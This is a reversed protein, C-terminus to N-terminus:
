APGLQVVTQRDPHFFEECAANAQELTVADLQALMEDLGMWPEEFLEVAAARYMRSHVSEMSLTVQGKLQQKGLALEGASVGRSAILGLQERIAELTSAATGPATGAYVGHMGSDRHFSQFSYVSYALALEERIRQFLRSSM